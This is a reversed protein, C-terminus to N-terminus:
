VLIKVERSGRFNATMGLRYVSNCDLCPVLIPAQGPTPNYSKKAYNLNKVCYLILRTSSIRFLIPWQLAAVTVACKPPRSEGGWRALM